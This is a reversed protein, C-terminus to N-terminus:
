FKTINFCLIRWRTHSSGSLRLHAANLLNCLLHYFWAWLKEHSSHNGTRIKIILYIQATGDLREQMYPTQTHRGGKELMYRWPRSDEKRNALVIRWRSTQIQTFWWLCKFILSYFWSSSQWFNLIELYLYSLMDSYDSFKHFGYMWLGGSSWIIKKYKTQLITQFNTM